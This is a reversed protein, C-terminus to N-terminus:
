LPNKFCNNMMDPLICEIFTNIFNYRGNGFLILNTGELLKSDIINIANNFAAYKM